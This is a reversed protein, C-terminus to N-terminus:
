NPFQIEFLELTARNVHFRGKEALHALRPPARNALRHSEARSEHFTEGLYVRPWFDPRVLTLSTLFHCSKRQFRNSWKRERLSFINRAFMHIQYSINLRSLYGSTLLYQPENIILQRSLYKRLTQSVDNIHFVYIKLSTTSVLMIM